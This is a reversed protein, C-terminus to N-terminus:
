PLSWPHYVFLPAECRVRLTPAAARNLTARALTDLTLDRVPWVLGEATVRQPTLSILSLPAGPDLPREHAGAPLLDLWGDAGYVRAPAPGQAIWALNALTHDLRRGLVAFYGLAAGPAHARCWRQAKALDCTEQEAELTLRDAPLSGAVAALTDGDGIIQLLPPAGPPPLRDCCVCAECRALAAREGPTDPPAGNAIVALRAPATM